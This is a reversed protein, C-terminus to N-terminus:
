PLDDHVPWAQFQGPEGRAVHPFQQEVIHQPCLLRFLFVVREGLRQAVLAHAHVIEPLQKALGELDGLAPGKDEVPYAGRLQEARRQHARHPLQEVVKVARGQRFREDAPHELRVQM